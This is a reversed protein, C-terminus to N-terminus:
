SSRIALFTTAFRSFAFPLCGFLGATAFLATCVARFAWRLHTGQFSFLSSVFSHSALCLSFSHECNKHKRVNFQLTYTFALSFGFIHNSCSQFCRKLFSVIYTLSVLACPPHRPVPLRLLAYRDVFLWPYGFAPLSGHIGSHPFGAPTM